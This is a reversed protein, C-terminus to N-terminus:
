RASSDRNQIYRAVGTLAAVAKSASAAELSKLYKAVGTEGGTAGGEQQVPEVSAMAVNSASKSGGSRFIVVLLVLVVIGLWYNQELLNGSQATGTEAVATFSAFLLGTFLGKMAHNKKM